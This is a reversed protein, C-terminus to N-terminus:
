PRGAFLLILLTRPELNSISYLQASQRDGRGYIALYVITQIEKTVHVMLATSQANTSKIHIM